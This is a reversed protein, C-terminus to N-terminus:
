EEEVIIKLSGGVFQAGNSGAVGSAGKKIQATLIDGRKLLQKTSSTTILLPNPRHAVNYALQSYSNSYGPQGASMTCLGGVFSTVSYTSSYTGNGKGRKLVLLTFSTTASTSQTVSCPMSYLIEKVRCTKDAVYITREQIPQSSSVSGTQAGLHNPYPFNATFATTKVPPPFNYVHHKRALQSVLGSVTSSSDEAAGFLSRIALKLDSM